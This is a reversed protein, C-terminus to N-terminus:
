SGYLHQYNMRRNPVKLTKKGGEGYFLSLYYVRVEKLEQCVAHKEVQEDKGSSRLWSRLVEKLKQWARLSCADNVTYVIHGVVWCSSFCQEWENRVPAAEQGTPVDENGAPHRAARQDSRFSSRDGCSKWPISESTRRFSAFTTWKNVDNQM